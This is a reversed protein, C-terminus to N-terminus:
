KINFIKIYKENYIPTRNLKKELDFLNDARIGYTLVDNYDLLLHTVSYNFYPAYVDNCLRHSIARMWDIKIVPLQGFGQVVADEPLNTKMWESVDYQNQSLRGGYVDQTFQYTPIVATFIVVACAVICLGIKIKERHKKSLLVISMVGIAILPYFVHAEAALSRHIRGAGIINLHLMLYLGMLWSLMFLDEDKRRVIIFLIGLILFPLTWWGMYMEDYSFYGMPVGQNEIDPIEYWKFLATWSVPETRESGGARLLVNGTQSPFLMIIGIFILLAFSYHKINFKKYKILFLIALIAVAMTSHFFSVPHIFLNFASLIACLILYVPKDTKIYRYYAFLILPIFAYALREPWQGWLFVMLDRGSVVLMLASLIAPWFGYLSRIVYYISVVFLLSFLAVVYYIITTSQGAFMNILAINLHYHPHYWLTHSIFKNDHGYRFDLITPLAYISRDSSSTLEILSYHSAADSEGYPLPNNRIPATWIFMGLLFVTLICVLEFINNNKM